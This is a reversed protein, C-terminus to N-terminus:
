VMNTFPAVLLFIEVWLVGVILIMNLRQVTIQAVFINLYQWLPHTIIAPTFLNM